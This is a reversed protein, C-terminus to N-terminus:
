VGQAALIAAQDAVADATDGPALSIVAAYGEAKLRLLSDRDPQGATVLLPSTLRVTPAVIGAIPATPAPSQAATAAFGAAGMVLVLLTLSVHNMSPMHGGAATSANM